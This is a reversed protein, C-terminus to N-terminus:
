SDDNELIAAVKAAVEPPLKSDDWRSLSGIVEPLRRHFYSVIAEKSETVLTDPPCEDVKALAGVMPVVAAEGRLSYRRKALALGEEIRRGGSLEIAKLDAYDRLRHRKTITNMKMALLDGMGAVEIGSIRTTPEILKVMAGNSFEINTNNLTIAMNGLNPTVREPVYVLSTRELTEYLEEVDLPETTFFDLDHSERHSLHIAVATGGALYSGPPLYGRIQLWAERTDDSLVSELGEPFGDGGRRSLDIKAEPTKRGSFQGGESIGKPRRRKPTM